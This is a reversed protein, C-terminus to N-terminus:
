KQGKVNSAIGDGEGTTETNEGTTNDESNNDSQTEETNTDGQNTNSDDQETNSGDQETNSDDQNTNDGGNTDNNQDGGTDEGNNEANQDNDEENAAAAGPSDLREKVDEDILAPDYRVTEPPNENNNTNVELISQFMGKMNYNKFNTLKNSASILTKKDRDTGIWSIFIKPDCMGTANVANTCETLPCNSVLNERNVFAYDYDPLLNEKVPEDCADELDEFSISELKGEKLTILM